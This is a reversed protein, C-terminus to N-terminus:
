FRNKTVLAAIKYAPNELRHKVKKLEKRISIGQPCHTECKGCQICLSANSKKARMTTCMFYERMGNFFSDTYSVNYCRFAGPIDVGQPCPLCYGCGTCGVKVKQNIAKKVLEYVKRQETTIEGAKVENAIRINEKLMEMSNMGSLVVSVEKQDWLWRFAWEAPSKGEGKHEFLKLAQQPLDRVLRGGRLPEMIIVPIQKKAAAQLGARGAQSFEDMYNYQIQCFDWEYAMLLKQFADTNGHYSFGVKRIQGSKKKEELWPIVGLGILREWTGVDPLMHMLYYDIYDTQLRRLQENFYREMDDSKKILYHPLKTAINIKHRCENKKLIKGLVEENGSYIYATDFYNVGQEIAYLIEKETEEMDVNKGKKPFRMCGFGLISLNQEQNNSRYQM